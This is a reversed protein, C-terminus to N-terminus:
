CPPLRFLSSLRGGFIPRTGRCSDVPRAIPQMERRQAQGGKQAWGELCGGCDVRTSLLCLRNAAKYDLDCAHPHQSNTSAKTASRWTGGGTQAPARSQLWRTDRHRNGRSNLKAKVGGMLVAMVQGPSLLQGCPHPPDDGDQEWEWITVAEGEGHSPPKTNPSPHPLSSDLEHHLPFLWHVRGLRLECKSKTM